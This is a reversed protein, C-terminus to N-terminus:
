VGIDFHIVKKRKVAVRRPLRLYTRSFSVFIITMTPVWYFWVTPKCTPKCTKTLFVSEVALVSYEWRARM